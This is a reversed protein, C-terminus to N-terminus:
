FFIIKIIIKMHLLILENNYIDKIKNKGFDLGLYGLISNKIILLNERNNVNLNGIKNIFSSSQFNSIFLLKNNNPLYKLIKLEGINSKNANNEFNYIKNFGFLFCLSLLIIIVPIKLNM